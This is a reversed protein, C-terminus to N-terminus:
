LYLSCQKLHIIYPLSVCFDPISIAFIIEGVNQWLNCKTLCCLHRSNLTLCNIWLKTKFHSPLFKHVWLINSFFLTLYTKWDWNIEKMCCKTHYNGCIGIETYMSYFCIKNSFRRFYLYLQNKCKVHLLSNVKRIM